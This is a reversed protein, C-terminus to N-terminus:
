RSCCAWCARPSRDEGVADVPSATRPVVPAAWCVAVVVLPLAASFLVRWSGATLAAGGGLNGLVTALGTMSAWASVLRPRQERPAGAILLALTSPLVAAAGAGSIVRGAILASATPALACLACGAGFVALGALLVGKRGLRDALAGAPILLCAFVVVYGDVIWLVASASPRLASASLAPIALNIASVMGLVLMVCCSMAATLAWVGARGTDPPASGTM